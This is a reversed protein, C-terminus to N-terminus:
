RVKKQLILGIVISTLALLTTPYIDEELLFYILFLSIFPSLYILSSIQATSSAIRMAKLWFVFALSMEFLGVYTAGLVGQWPWETDNPLLLSIAALSPLSCIFCLLLAHVPPASIKTNIIWYLAWILTSLIALLVGTWDVNAVTSFDLKTVLIVVGLYSFCLGLLDGKSFKHKLAPIALLSLVIAWTYNIPQAVQAPLRDYAEFLVFYYLTPNITGAVLFVLPTRRFHGLLGVENPTKQYFYVSALVLISVATAVIVIQGPLLFDLTLKFATAVTSWMLVTILALRLALGQNTQM